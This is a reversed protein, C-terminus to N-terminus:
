HSTAIARGFVLARRPYLARVFDVVFFSPFLLLVSVSVLAVALLLPLQLKQPQLGQLLLPLLLQVLVPPRLLLFQLLRQRLRLLLKDNMGSNRLGQLQHPWM